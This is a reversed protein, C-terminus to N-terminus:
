KSARGGFLWCVDRALWTLGARTVFSKTRKKCALSPAVLGQSAGPPANKRCSTPPAFFDGKGITGEPVQCMAMRRWYVTCMDLGGYVRGTGRVPTRDEEQGGEEEM